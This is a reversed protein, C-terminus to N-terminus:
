LRSLYYSWCDVESIASGIPSQGSRLHASQEVRFLAFDDTQAMLYRPKLTLDKDPLPADLSSVDTQNLEAPFRNSSQHAGGVHLCPQWRIHVL